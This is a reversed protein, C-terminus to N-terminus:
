YRSRLTSFVTRDWYPAGFLAAEYTTNRRDARRAPGSATGRAGREPGAAEGERTAAHACCAFM